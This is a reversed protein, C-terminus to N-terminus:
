TEERGIAMEGLMCVASYGGITQATSFNTFTHNVKFGGRRPFIFARNAM